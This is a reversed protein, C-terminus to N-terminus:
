APVYRKGAPLAHIAYYPGASAPRSTEHDVTRLRNNMAEIDSDVIVFFAAEDVMSAFAADTRAVLFNDSDEEDPGWGETLEILTQYTALGGDAKLLLAKSDRGLRVKRIADFARGYARTVRAAVSM